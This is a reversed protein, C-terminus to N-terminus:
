STRLHTYAPMTSSYTLNGELLSKGYLMSRRKESLDVRHVNVQVGYHSLEQKTTNLGKVDVDVIDLNAGAEAFRHAIAKGIGKAAGTILARKGKLSILESLPKLKPM